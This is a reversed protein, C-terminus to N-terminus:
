GCRLDDRSPCKCFKACKKRWSRLSSKRNQFKDRAAIESIFDLAKRPGEGFPAELNTSDYKVLVSNISIFKELDKIIQDKYKLVLDKYNM